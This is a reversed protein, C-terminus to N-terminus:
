GGKSGFSRLHTFADGICEVIDRAIMSDIGRVDAAVDGALGHLFVGLLCADVHEYCQALFSGIMGSLVDGSGATAMGPNGTANIYVIGNPTTIRTHAGKLVIFIKLESSIKLQTELRDFSSLHLPPLICEVNVRECT